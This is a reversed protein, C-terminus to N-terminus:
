RAVPCPGALTMLQLEAPKDAHHAPNSLLSSIAILKFPEGLPAALYQILPSLKSSVDGDPPTNSLGCREPPGRIPDKVFLNFTGTTLISARKHTSRNECYLYASHPM